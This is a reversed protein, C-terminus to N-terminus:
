FLSLQKPSKEIIIAKQLKNLIELNYNGCSDTKRSEFANSLKTNFETIAAAKADEYSNYVKGFQSPSGCGGSAGLCYHLGYTFPIGVLLGM